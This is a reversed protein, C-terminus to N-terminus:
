RRPRGQSNRRPKRLWADAAPPPARQVAVGAPLHQGAVSGRNWERNTFHDTRSCESASMQRIRRGEIGETSGGPHLLRACVTRPALEIEAAAAALRERQGTVGAVSGTQWRRWAVRSDGRQRSHLM